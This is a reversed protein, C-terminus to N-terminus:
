EPVSGRSRASARSAHAARARRTRHAHGLLRRPLAHRGRARERGHRRVAPARAQV